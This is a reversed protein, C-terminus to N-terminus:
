RLTKRVLEAEEESAGRLLASKMRDRYKYSPDGLLSLTALRELFKDGQDKNLGQICDLGKPLGELKKVTLSMFEDVKRHLQVVDARDNDVRGVIEQLVADGCILAYTQAVLTNLDESPQALADWTRHDVKTSLIELVSKEFPTIELKPLSLDVIQRATEASVQGREMDTCIRLGNVFSRDKTSNTVYMDLIQRKVEPKLLKSECLVPACWLTFGSVVSKIAEEVPKRYLIDLECADYDNVKITDRFRIMIRLAKNQLEIPKEALENMKAMIAKKDADVPLNESEILENEEIEAPTLNKIEPIPEEITTSTKIEPIPDEITTNSKSEQSPPLELSEQKESTASEVPPHVAEHKGILSNLVVSNVKQISAFVTTHDCKKVAEQWIPLLKKLDEPNKSKDVLLKLAHENAYV